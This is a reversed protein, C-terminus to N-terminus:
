TPNLMQKNSGHFNPVGTLVGEFEQLPAGVRIGHASLQLERITNEHAGIRKKVVAVAKRMQGSEEFYRLLVVSDALYTLDIPSNMHGVVGHQALTIITVVGRNALFGFLEHLQIELFKVSPMAQLYGNLSDLVVVRTGNEVAARVQNVFQGPTLQGPDVAKFDLLGKEIFEDVPLGVSRARGKMTRVNEEFIYTCVKEGRRAAETAFQLTLTSKGTGAPGLILCSTGRDLGGGLLADLEAVGSAAFGDQFVGKHEAAVLRPFVQVGGPVIRADHFGSVFNVGRLKDVKIRRRDAGYDAEMKALTIVGHAISQVHLDSRSGTDDDLMLVTIKLGAFFHKLSLMQRRFRLPTDSLLRIESLSDIVVREPDVEKVKKLLIGTMDSLEIESTHFVTNREEEALQHEFASLEFVALNGLEWGHSEAVAHIEDTTESLTVYLGREGRTEGQLLYQLALTTKGTGPHGKLLYLRNAPLGGGLITDLGPIGTISKKRVPIKTM